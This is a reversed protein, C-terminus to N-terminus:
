FELRRVVRVYDYPHFTSALRDGCNYEYETDDDEEGIRAKVWAGGRETARLRLMEVARVDDYAEYWKVSELWLRLAPLAHSDDKTWDEKFPELQPDDAVAAAFADRQLADEFAFVFVVDSRYGM